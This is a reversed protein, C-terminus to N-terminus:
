KLIELLNIRENLLLLTFNITGKKYSIFGEGAPYINISASDLSMLPRFPDTLPNVAKGQVSQPLTFMEM